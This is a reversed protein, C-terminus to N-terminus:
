GSVVAFVLFIAYLSVFAYGESRSIQNKYRGFVMTGFLLLAAGLNIFVDAVLDDSFDLPSILASLGLVWFINFLNSGVINGVAIDINQGRVAVVTAALEPLSTGVAVITLGILAESVNFLTAIEIAGDVIWRGGFYLGLLFLIYVM